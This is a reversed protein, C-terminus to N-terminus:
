KIREKDDGSLLRKIAEWLNNARDVQKAESTLEGYRVNVYLDTLETM